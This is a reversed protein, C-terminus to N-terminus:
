NLLISCFSNARAILRGCHHQDCCGDTLRDLENFGSPEVIVCSHLEGVLVDDLINYTEYVGADQQAM